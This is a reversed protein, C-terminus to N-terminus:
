LSLQPRFEPRRLIEAVARQDSESNPPANSRGAKDLHDRLQAVWMHAAATDPKGLQEKLPATPIRFEGRSTRVEWTPPLADGASKADQDIAAEVERLVNEFEAPDRVQSWAVPALWLIAAVWHAAKM